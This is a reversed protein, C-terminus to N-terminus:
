EAHHSAQSPYARGHSEDTPSDTDPQGHVVQPQGQEPCQYVRQGGHPPAEYLQHKNMEASEGVAIDRADVGAAAYAALCLTAYDSLNASDDSAGDWESKSSDLAVRAAKIWHNEKSNQQNTWAM